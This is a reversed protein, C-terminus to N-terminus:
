TSYPFSDWPLIELFYVTNVDYIPMSTAPDPEYEILPDFGLLPYIKAVFWPPKVPFV